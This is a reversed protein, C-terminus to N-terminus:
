VDEQIEDLFQRAQLITKRVQSSETELLKARDAMRKQRAQETEFKELERSVMQDAFRGESALKERVVKYKSLKQFWWDVGLIKERMANQLLFAPLFISPFQENLLQFDEFNVTNEETLNMTKIARRTRVKELPNLVEVLHTFESSKISGTRDQDAFIYIFRLIEEKGFFAYTGVARVFDGFEIMGNSDLADMSRFVEESVPTQPQELFDFIQKLSIQGLKKKDIKEFVKMLMKVDNEELAMFEIAYELPNTIQHALEKHHAEALRENLRQLLSILNRNKPQESLLHRVKTIESILANTNTLASTKSKDMKEVWLSMSSMGFVDLNPELRVYNNLICEQEEKELFTVFINKIGKTVYKDRRVLINFPVKEHSIIEHGKSPTIYYESTPDKHSLAIDTIFITQDFTPQQWLYFSGGLSRDMPRYYPLGKDQLHANQKVFYSYESSDATLYIAKLCELGGGVGEKNRTRLQKAMHKEEEDMEMKALQSNTTANEIARNVNRALKVTRKALKKITSQRNRLKEELAKQAAMEEALRQQRLIQLSRLRAEKFQELRNRRVALDIELAKQRRSVQLENIFINVYQRYTQMKRPYSELFQVEGQLQQQRTELARTQAELSLLQYEFQCIIFTSTSAYLFPKQVHYLSQLELTSNPFCLSPSLYDYCPKNGGGDAALEQYAFINRQIADIKKQINAIQDQTSHLLSEVEVLKNAYLQGEHAFFNTICQERTQLREELQKKVQMVELLVEDMYVTLPKLKAEEEGLVRKTMDVSLQKSELTQRLVALKAERAAADGDTEGDLPDMHALIQTEIEQQEQMMSTISQEYDAIQSQLIGYEEQLSTYRTLKANIREEFRIDDICQQVLWPQMLLVLLWQDLKIHAHQKEVFEDLLIVKIGSLEEISMEPEDNPFAYQTVYQQDYGDLLGQLTVKLSDISQNQLVKQKNKLLILQQNTQISEDTGAPLLFLQVELQIVEGFLQNNVLQSQILESLLTSFVSMEKNNSEMKTMEEKLLSEQAADLMILQKSVLVMQEKVWSLANQDFNADSVREKVYSYIRDLQQFESYIYHLRNVTDAYRVKLVGLRRYFLRVVQVIWWVINSYIEVRSDMHEYKMHLIKELQKPTCNYRKGKKALKALIENDVPPASNAGKTQKSSPEVKVSDEVKNSVGLDADTSVSKSSQLKAKKMRYLSDNHNFRASKSSAAVTSHTSGAATENVHNFLQLAKYDNYFEERMKRYKQLVPVLKDHLQKYYEVNTTIFQSGSSYLQELDGIIKNRAYVARRTADLVCRKEIEEAPLHKFKNMKSKKSKHFIKQSAETHLKTSGFLKNQVLKSSKGTSKAHGTKIEFYYKPLSNFVFGKKFLWIRTLFRRVLVQLKHVGNSCKGVNKMHTEIQRQVRKQALIKRAAYCKYFMIITNAQNFEKKYKEQSQLFIMRLREQEKEYDKILQREKQIRRVESINSLFKYLYQISHLTIYSNNVFYLLSHSVEHIKYVRPETYSMTHNRTLINSHNFYACHFCYGKNCVQCHILRLRHSCQECYLVYRRNLVYEFNNILPNYIDEDPKVSSSVGPVTNYNAHSKTIPWYKFNYVHVPLPINFDEATYKRKKKFRDDDNSYKGGLFIRQQETLEFNTTNATNTVFSSQFLSIPNSYFSLKQGDSLSVYPSLDFAQPIVMDLKAALRGGKERKSQTIHELLGGTKKYTDEIEWAETNHAYKGRSKVQGAETSPRAGKNQRSQARLVVTEEHVERHVFPTRINAIKKWFTPLKLFIQCIIYRESIRTLMGRVRKQIKIARKIKYAQQKEHIVSIYRRYVRQIKKASRTYLVIKHYYMREIIRANRKEIFHRLKRQFDVAARYYYKYCYWIRRGMVKHRFKRWICFKRYQMIIVGVARYELLRRRVYDDRFKLVDQKPHPVLVRFIQTNVDQSANFSTPDVNTGYLSKKTSINFEARQKTEELQKLISSKSYDAVYPFKSLTSAFLKYSYIAKHSRAISIPIVFDNLRCFIKLFAPVKEAEINECGRLDVSTLGYLSIRNREQAQKYLTNLYYNNLTLSEHNSLVLVRLKKAFKVIFQWIADTYQEGKVSGYVFIDADIAPTMSDYSAYLHTLEKCYLLVCALADDTLARCNNIHLERLRRLKSAVAHMVTNTVHANDSLNLVEINPCYNAVYIFALPTLQICSRLSLYLLSSNVPALTASPTIFYSDTLYIHMSLDLSELIQGAAFLSLVDTQNNVKVVTNELVNTRNLTYINGIDVHQLRHMHKQLIDLVRGTLQICYSLRLTHLSVCGMLLDYVFDDDIAQLGRASFSVLLPLATSVYKCALKTMRYCNDLSLFTLKRGLYQKIHGQNDIIIGYSTVSSCLSIDCVDLDEARVLLENVSKYSLLPNQRCEFSQLNVGVVSNAIAFVGKDTINCCSSINIHTLKTLNACMDELYQDTVQENHSVDVKRLNGLSFVKYLGDYSLKPCKSVNLVELEKQFYRAIEDILSESCEELEHADIERVPHTLSALKSFSLASSVQSEAM